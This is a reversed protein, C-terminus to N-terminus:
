DDTPVTAVAAALTGLSEKLAAKADKDEKVKALLQDAVASTIGNDTFQKILEYMDEVVQDGAKVAVVIDDAVTKLAATEATSEDMGALLEALNAMIKLIGLIIIGFYIHLWM